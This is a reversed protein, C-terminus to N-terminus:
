LIKERKHLLNILGQRLTTKPRWGCAATTDSIDLILCSQRDSSINTEVERNPQGAIELAISALEGISTGIGTGLNYLRRENNSEFASLALTVIGEAADEVFLFDRVPSTDMVKLSGVGPIQRLITSMVNNQSMGAGYINALRVVVGAPSKLVALESSHKVRSYVDNVQIQDSPFCARANEDGYLVASSAYVVRRYGKALLAVLTEQKKEEYDNEYKAVRARDNDEALHILVDGVPSEAYDLVKCCGAIKGRTVAIVEVNNHASLARLVSDGIFGSAGTIVVKLSRM